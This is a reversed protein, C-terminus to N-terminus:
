VCKNAINIDGTITVQCSPALYDLVIFTTASVSAIVACKECSQGNFIVHSVMFVMLFMLLYKFFQKICKKDLM